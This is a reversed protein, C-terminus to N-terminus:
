DGKPDSAPSIKGWFCRTLHNEHHHNEGSVSNAIYDLAQLLLLLVSKLSPDNTQNLAALIAAKLDQPM